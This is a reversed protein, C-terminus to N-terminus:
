KRDEGGELGGVVGCGMRSRVYGDEGYREEGGGWGGDGLMNVKGSWVCLGDLGRVDGGKEEVENWKGGMEDCRGDFVRYVMREKFWGGMGMGEGFVRVDGMKGVGDVGERWWELRKMGLGGMGGWDDVM